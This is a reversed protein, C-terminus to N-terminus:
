VIVIFLNSDILFVLQETTPDPYLIAGSAPIAFNARAWRCINATGQSNRSRAKVGGNLHAARIRSVM